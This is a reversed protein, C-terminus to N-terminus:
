DRVSSTGIVHLCVAVALTEDRDGEREDGAM